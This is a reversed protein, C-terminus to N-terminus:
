LNGETATICKAVSLFNDFQEAAIAADEIPRAFSRKYVYIEEASKERKWTYAIWWHRCMQRMTTEEPVYFPDVMPKRELLYSAFESM